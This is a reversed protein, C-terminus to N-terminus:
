PRQAKLEARVQEVSALVKLRKSSLGQTAMGEGVAALEGLISNRWRELISLKEARTLLVHGAVEHPSEFETEPDWKAADRNLSIPKSM